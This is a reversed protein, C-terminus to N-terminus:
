KASGSMYASAAPTDIYENVNHMVTEKLPLIYKLYDNGPIRSAGKGDSAVNWRFALFVSGTWDAKSRWRGRAHRFASMYTDEQEGDATDNQHM